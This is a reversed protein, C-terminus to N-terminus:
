RQITKRAYRTDGGMTGTSVMEAQYDASDGGILVPTVPQGAAHAALTVLGQCRTVGTLTMNGGVISSGTYSIEEGEIDLTGVTLFKPHYAIQFPVPIATCSASLPTVLTTVPYVAVSRLHPGATSSVTGVTRGRAVGTFANGAIGTYTVFEGSATLDEEIQLTGSAPFRNTTYVTVTNAAATVRLKVLTAPLNSYVTFSGSGLAQATAPSPNPDTASRYWNLNQAWRREEYELGSEALFFAQVSGQTDASSKVDSSVMSGLVAIFAAIVVLLVVAVILLFGRQARQPSM